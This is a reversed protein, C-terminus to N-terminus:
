MEEMKALPTKIEHGANTIFQKQKEINEAIPRIARKSFLILLLLMFGWCLIGIVISILLVLLTSRVQSATDLFVFLRGRGDTTDAM